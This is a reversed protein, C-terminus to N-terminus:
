LIALPLLPELDMVHVSSTSSIPSAAIKGSRRDQQVVVMRHQNPHLSFLVKHEEWAVSELEIWEKRPRAEQGQSISQSLRPGPTPTSSSGNEKVSKNSDLIDRPPIDLLTQDDSSTEEQSWSMDSPPLSLTSSNLYSDVEKDASEKKEESEPTTRKLRATEAESAKAPDRSLGADDKKYIVFSPDILSMALVPEPHLIDWLRLTDKGALSIHCAVYRSSCSVSSIDRTGQYKHVLQIATKHMVYLGCQNQDQDLSTNDLESMRIVALIPWESPPLAGSCIMEAYEQTFLSPVSTSIINMVPLTVICLVVEQGFVAAVLSRTNQVACISRAAGKAEAYHLQKAPICAPYNEVDKQVHVRLLTGAEEAGMVISDDGHGDLRIFADLKHNPTVSRWAVSSVADCTSLPVKTYRQQTSDIILAYSDDQAFLVQTNHSAAKYHQSQKIWKGESASELHWFQVHHLTEIAIWSDRHGCVTSLIVNRFGDICWVNDVCDTSQRVLSDLGADLKTSGRRSVDSYPFSIYGGDSDSDDEIESVHGHEPLDELFDPRLLTGEESGEIEDVEAPEEDEPVNGLLFGPQPATEDESAHSHSDFTDITTLLSHRSNQSETTIHSDITDHADSNKSSQSGEIEDIDKTQLLAEHVTPKKQSLPEDKVKHRALLEDLSTSTGEDEISALVENESRSPSSILPTTSQQQNRVNAKSENQPAEALKRNMYQFDMSSVGVLMRPSEPIRLHSEELRSEGPPQVRIAKAAPPTIAAQQKLPHLENEDNFPRKRPTAAQQTGQQTGQPIRQQGKPQKPRGLHTFTISDYVKQQNAEKPNKFLTQRAAILTNPNNLPKETLVGRPVKGTSGNNEKDVTTGKGRPGPVNRLSSSSSPVPSAVNGPDRYIELKQQIPKGPNSKSSVPRRSPSSQSAKQSHPLNFMTSPQLINCKKTTNQSSSQTARNPLVPPRLSSIPHLKLQHQSSVGPCKTADKLNFKMTPGAATTTTRAAQLRRQLASELQSRIKDFEAKERDTLARTKLTLLFSKITQQTALLHAGTLNTLSNRDGAPSQAIHPKRSAM